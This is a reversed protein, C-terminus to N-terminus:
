KCVNTVVELLKELAGSDNMRHDSGCDILSAGSRVSLDFSNAFPVVDDLRSHLISASVSVKSPGKFNVWAPAILVLEANKPDIAMAVAGGRSSGIVVDPCENDVLAQAIDCSKLFDNKPLLPNLVEFGHEKLFAPKKGGPKSELGHLFLVKRKM